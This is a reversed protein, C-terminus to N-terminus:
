DDEREVRRYNPCNKCRTNLFMEECRDSLCGDDGFHSNLLCEKLEHMKQKVHAVLIWNLDITADLELFEDYIRKKTEPIAWAGLITNPSCVLVDRIRLLTKSMEIDILENQALQTLFLCAENRTM